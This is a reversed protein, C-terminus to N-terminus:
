HPNQVFVLNLFRIEVKLLIKLKSVGHLIRVKVGSGMDIQLRDELGPGRCGAFVAPRAQAIIM